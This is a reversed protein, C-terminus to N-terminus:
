QKVVQLLTLVLSTDSAASQIESRLMFVFSELKRKEKERWIEENPRKQKTFKTGETYNGQDNSQRQPM